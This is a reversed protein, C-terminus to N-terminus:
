HCPSACCEIVSMSSNEAYGWNDMNETDKLSVESHSLPIQCVDVHRCCPSTYSYAVSMVTAAICRVIYVCFDNIGIHAIALIGKRISSGSPVVIV